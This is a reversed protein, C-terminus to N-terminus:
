FRSHKGEIVQPSAGKCSVTAIGSDGELSLGLGHFTLAAGGGPKGLIGDLKGLIEHLVELGAAPFQM